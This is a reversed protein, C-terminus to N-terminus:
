SQSYAHKISQLIVNLLYVSPFCMLYYGLILDNFTMRIQAITRIIADATAFGEKKGVLVVSQRVARLVCVISM